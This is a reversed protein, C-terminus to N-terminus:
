AKIDPFVNFQNQIEKLSFYSYDYNSKLAKYNDLLIEYPFSDEQM